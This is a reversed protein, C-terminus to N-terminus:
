RRPLEILVVDSNERVREFLVRKGDPSVDFRLVSEGPRLRTLQRRQGTGVDFLWFDQRRFGGLKVVLQKGGPLFRYSDGVRDVLLLPLPFPQRDPAVAKLPVSRARSTGAYLIFRGDPSWVPNSSVSDVLRVPPGGAVPIKFVRVGPGVMAGVAIWKGDPSWSATGRVDLSEAVPRVGTGERTTCYLTGRGQRRVPFCMSGGDPSIAVAGIVAGETPRWLERAQGGSLRWIGDTGGRSALYFLSSDAGFRPAASRATPLALRSAAQEGAVGTGIPVTWLQVSPNSVTAVLRRPQAPIESSAAISIYHEVGTSWRHAIRDGLDMAYLWPGTGDDAIATFALTRDDLLVPYAVRSDLNTIREPPGGGSRIRWIDMDNPPVGRAFYLFRGDPSWSLYHCHIGPDAIFLRRPNRGESDAVYIPDGPTSEHYAIKSGDPSWAAMVATNLFPRPPGGLRPVLSVSAPSTIDAVRIWVNAADASFGINRVDENFLQSLRGGTLNVFQGTGVQGVFADFVSDRDALFAVFQGNASIAADVESGAFDTLREIRETSWRRRWSALPESGRRSAVVAIAAMGTVVAAAAAARIWRRRSRSLPTPLSPPIALANLRQVLEAATQWRDAPRKELSRMVLEALAEPVDARHMGIPVPAQTLHASLIEQPADGTFPPRGALLEYALVGVAYIDARHDVLPDAAIQEPAMYAPTGLLVGAGTVTASATADTSTKALGVDSVMAAKAVGFDTVLAHRGSLLVNDPKIDRHIIRREHAHALADCVDRLVFVADDLPLPGDCALRQRLSLGAEYPMVYYLSGDAMGSDYLPVIHPHHLQAAIEIERLFREPGLASALAPHVVKVAVDRGHKLDRALYVTAMGGRGVERTLRYHEALAEPFGAVEDDFLAAFREAAPRSLLTPERECEELLRDLESRRVLDGASLEEILSARREPPADLLADVLSALESWDHFRPAASM